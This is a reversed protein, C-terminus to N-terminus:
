INQIGGVKSAPIILPANNRCFDVLETVEQESFGTINSVKYYPITCDMTKFGYIEDPQEFHVVTFEGNWKTHGVGIENYYTCYPIFMFTGGKICYKSVTYWFMYVLKKYFSIFISIIYNLLIVQIKIEVM